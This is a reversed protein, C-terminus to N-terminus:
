IVGLIGHGRPRHSIRAEQDPTMGTTVFEILVTGSEDPVGLAGYRANGLHAAAAVIHKLTEALSLESSISLAAERLAMLQRSESQNADTPIPFSNEM